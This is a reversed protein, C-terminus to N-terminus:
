LGVGAKIVKAITEIDSRMKKDAKEKEALLAELANKKDEVEGGKITDRQKKLEALRKRDGASASKRLKGSKDYVREEIAKINADLNKGADANRRDSREKAREDERLQRRWGSLGREGIVKIANARAEEAKAVEKQADEIKRNLEKVKAAHKREEEETKEKIEVLALDKAAQKAFAEEIEEREKVAKEYSAQADKLDQEAQKAAEEEVREREAYSKAVAVRLAEEDETKGLEHKGQMATQQKKLQEVSKELVRVEAESQMRRNEIQTQSQRHKQYEEDYRRLEEPVSGSARGEMIDRIQAIKAETERQKRDNSAM